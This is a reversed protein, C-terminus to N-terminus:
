GMAALGVGFSLANAAASAVLARAIEHDTSALVYIGAEILLAGIEGALLYSEYSGASALLVTNMALNTVATTVACVLAMRWRQRRYLLAVVPAEILVTIALALLVRETM